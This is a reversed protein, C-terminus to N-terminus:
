PTKRPKGNNKVEKVIIETGYDKLTDWGEVYYEDLEDFFTEEFNEKEAMDKIVDIIIKHFGTAFEKQFLPLEKKQKKNYKEEVDGEEFLVPLSDKTTIEIQLTTKM